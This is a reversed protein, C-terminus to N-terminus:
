EYRLAEVPRINAANWSPYFGAIVAIILGIGLAVLVTQPSIIIPITFQLGFTLVLQQIGYVFVTGTIIGICGGIFGIVASESLFLILIHWREGGVAKMMGIERTREYVSMTITNMVGIAGVVLSVAGLALLVGNVVNMIEGIQGLVAEQTQIQADPFLSELANKIYDAQEPDEFTVMLSSVYGEKNVLHQADQLSIFCGVDFGGSGISEIIGVVQFTEGIGGAISSLTITDELNLGLRKATTEGLVAMFHEDANPIRGKSLSIQYLSVAQEPDIGVIVLQTGGIRSFTEITPVCNDVGPIQLVYERIHEPVAVGHSEDSIIIGAGLIDNLTTEIEYRMGDGLSILSVITAIGIVIGLITLAARFKRRGISKRAMNFAFKGMKPYNVM